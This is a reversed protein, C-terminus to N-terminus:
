SRLGKVWDGRRKKHSRMRIGVVCSQVRVFGVGGAGYMRVTTGEYAESKNPPHSPRGIARNDTTRQGNANLHGGVREERATYSLCRCEHLVFVSVM